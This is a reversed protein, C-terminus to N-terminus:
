RSSHRSGPSPRPILGPDRSDAPRNARGRHGDATGQDGADGEDIEPQEEGQGMPRVPARVLPSRDDRSGRDIGQGQRDIARGPGKVAAHPPRGATPQAEQGDVQPGGQRGQQPPRQQHLHHPHALRLADGGDGIEDGRAIALTVEQTAQHGQDGHHPHHGVNGQLELGDGAAEDDQQLVRGDDHRVRRCGQGDPVIRGEHHGQQQGEEGDEETGPVQVGALAVLAQHRGDGEFGDHFQRSEQRHPEEHDQAEEPAGTQTGFGGLLQPGRPPAGLGQELGANAVEGIPEGDRQQRPQRDHEQRPLKLHRHHLDAVLAMDLAGDPQERQIQKEDVEEDDGNGQRPHQGEARAPHVRVAVDQGQGHGMAVGPQREEDEDAAERRSGPHHDHLGDGEGGHDAIVEHQRDQQPAPLAQGGLRIHALQQQADPAPGDDGDQQQTVEIVPQGPIGIGQHADAEDAKGGDGLEGRGDDGTEIPPAAGPAPGQRPQRRAEGDPEVGQQDGGEGLRAPQGQTEQLLAGEADFEQLGLSQQPQRTEVFDGMGEDPAQGGIDPDEQDHRRAPHGVRLLHSLGAGEHIGELIGPPGVQGQPPTVGLHSLQQGQRLAEQAPLPRSRGKAAKGAGAPHGPHGVQRRIGAGDIEGLGQERPGDAPGRRPDHDGGDGLLLGQAQVLDQVDEVLGGLDPGVAVFQLTLGPLQLRRRRFQPRGIQPELLQVAQLVIEHGGDGVLQAGRQGGDPGKRLDQVVVRVQVLRLALAEEADQDALGFAQRAQDILDQVQGLDFGAM